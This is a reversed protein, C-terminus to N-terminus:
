FEPLSEFNDAESDNAKARFYPRANSPHILQLNELYVAAHDQLMVADQTDLELGSDFRIRKIVTDERRIATPKLCVCCLQGAPVRLEPDNFSDMVRLPPRLENNNLFEMVTDMDLIAEESQNPTEYRLHTLKGQEYISEKLRMINPAFMETALSTGAVALGSGNLTIDNFNAQVAVVRNHVVTSDDVFIPISTPIADLMGISLGGEAPKRSAFQVIQNDCLLGSIMNGNGDRAMLQREIVEGVVYEGVELLVVAGVGTAIAPILLTGGSLLAILFGGLVGITFALVDGWFGTDVDLDTDMAFTLKGDILQPKLVLELDVDADPWWDIPVEGELTFKIRKKTVSVKIRKWDGKKDEGPAPLPHSGDPARLSTHWINNAFRFFSDRALGLAIHQGNPLISVADAANGRALHENPPLPDESQASARINLNLLLAMAHEHEADGLAKQLTPTAALSGFNPMPIQFSTNDWSTTFNFQNNTISMRAQVTIGLSTDVDLDWNPDDIVRVDTITANLPLSIVGNDTLATIATLFWRGGIHLEADFGSRIRTTDLM